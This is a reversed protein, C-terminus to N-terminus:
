AEGRKNVENEYGVSGLPLTTAIADFAAQSIALKIMAGVETPAARFPDGDLKIDPKGAADAARGRAPAPVPPLSAGYSETVLV